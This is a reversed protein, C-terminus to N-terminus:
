LDPSLRLRIIRVNVLFYGVMSFLDIEFVGSFALTVMFIETYVLM